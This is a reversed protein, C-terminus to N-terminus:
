LMKSKNLYIARNRSKIRPAASPPHTESWFLNAFSCLQAQLDGTENTKCIKETM